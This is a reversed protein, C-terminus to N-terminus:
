SQEERTQSAWCAAGVLAANDLEALHIPTDAVVAMASAAVGRRVAALWDEGARTVSGALAVLGPDLSNLLGGVARGLAEGATLICTRAADDTSALRAIEGGTRYDGTIRLFHQEIGTGSALGEVHGTRGCSCPVEDAGIVDVHGLHGAVFSEGLVLEGDVVFGGGIGTGVAVLLMSRHGRGCGHVYEGWTHAHVDNLVRVDLGSRAALGGRLDTGAWGSIADTAATVAGRIPDIVGASAVALSKPRAGGAALHEDLISRALEWAQDLLAEPGDHAPTPVQRLHRVAHGAVLGGAIKTGGIDLALM